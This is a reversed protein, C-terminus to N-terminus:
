RTRYITISGARFAVPLVGEFRAIVQDGYSRQEVDGVVVFRVAYRNLISQIASVDGDRYLLALDGQRAGLEPLPGRWQLEHGVWGLVTAAGSYTSMSAASSYEGGGEGVGEAIVARGGPGNQDSLWRVAAREDPSLFSEGDLTPGGPPQESMRTAIATLPYVLGAGVFVLACVAVIWRARRTFRGVMALGVGGALAALVWANEHFKFVTNMRSHFADDLFIVEVGLLMAVAFAGIGVAMTAAPDFRELVGPWPLLVALLAVMLGPAPQGLIALAAGAVVGAGTILWGRRDGICWRTFVGLSALLVIAWGFLVLMSGLPTRDRVIGLGLPPGGYGVFYPLYLAAGAFPTLVAAVWRWRWACFHAAYLSLGIYLLWFPAIDWTNIVLLGGLAVAALGQSWISRLTAGRSLVHAAAVALVLLEFPIAVFHPHLDSLFASFFPFEDIGDPQLNPIIRSAHFWWSSNAPPWVGPVVSDAFHNIALPQGVEPSLLRRSVLYELFTELNGCFLALVTATTAGAAAWPPPVSMARALSWALSSLGVMALAPVNAAALNYAVGPAVGSLKGACALVFYGFYYYPVGFGALWTDQTPLSQAAMFGNLFAMDMPKETAAVAPSHSRLVAFLVFGGLFIAEWVVVARAHARLWSLLPTGRRLESTWAAAGVLVVAGLLTVRTFPLPTLMCVLWVLWSLGLLGATKTAAWGRDALPALARAVLPWTALGAVQVVIYWAVADRM